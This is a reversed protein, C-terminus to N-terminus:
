LAYPSVISMASYRKTVNKQSHIETYLAYLMDVVYLIYFLLGHFLVDTGM